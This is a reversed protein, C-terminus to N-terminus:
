SLAELKDFKPEANWSSKTKELFIERQVPVIKQQKFERSQLVVFSMM